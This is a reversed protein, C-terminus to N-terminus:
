KAALALGLFAFFLAFGINGGSIFFGIAFGGLVYATANKKKKEKPVYRGSALDDYRKDLEVLRKYDSKSLWHYTELGTGDCEGCEQVYSDSYSRYDIRVTDTM